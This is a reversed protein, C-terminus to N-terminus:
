YQNEGQILGLILAPVAGFSLDSQVGFTLVPSIGYYTGDELILRLDSVLMISSGIKFSAQAGVALILTGVSSKWRGPKPSYRGWGGYNDYYRYDLERSGKVFGHGFAFFLSTGRKKVPSWKTRHLELMYYIMREEKTKHDRRWLYGISIRSNPISRIPSWIGALDYTLSLALLRDHSRAGPAYKGASDMYRTQWRPFKSTDTDFQSRERDQQTQVGTLESLSVTSELNPIRTKTENLMLSSAVQKMGEILLIELEGRHDFDSVMLVEGTEVDILRASVSYIAGIKSISGGVMQQVGLIRGVRVLCENSVCGSQQLDQEELIEQMLGRDVVKFVELRFLENRLRNTLAIAETSSIGFGELDVVAITTRQAHLPVAAFFTAYFLCTVITRMLCSRAVTM